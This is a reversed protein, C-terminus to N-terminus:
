GFRRYAVPAVAATALVLLKSGDGIGDGNETVDSRDQVDPDRPAYDESDPVGDGDTDREGTGTMGTDRSANASTPTVAGDTPEAGPSETGRDDDAGAPGVGRRRDGDGATDDDGGVDGIERPPDGDRGPPQYREPPTSADDPVGSNATGADDTTTETDDATTETDDATTETDDTATEDGDATTTLGLERQLDSPICDIMDESLEARVSAASERELQSEIDERVDETPPCVGKEGSEDPPGGPPGESPGDPLLEDESQRTETETATDTETETATETETDTATETETDTATDTETETETPTPTATPTPTPTPTTTTSDDDSSPDVLRFRDFKWDDDTATIRIVHSGPGLSVTGVTATTFSGNSDPVTVNELRTEGDVALDFSASAEAATRVRLEYSEGEEVAVTYELWEGTEIREVWYDELSYDIDVSTRRYDDWVMGSTEHFAVGEGGTDFDEAQVTGPVAHPGDYPSQETTEENAATAVGALSGPGASAAAVSALVVVGVVCVAGLKRDSM